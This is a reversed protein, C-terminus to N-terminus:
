KLYKDLLEAMQKQYEKAKLHAKIAFDEQDSAYIIARSIAVLLGCQKNLGNKAVEELSGGQAGVGPILLFNNPAIERIKKLYDAQTAGVVFMIRDSEEWSLATKIVQEFVFGGGQTKLLQFDKSSPNSSLAVIIAYKNKYSLFPKVSDYGMYPSLTVSNCDLDKPDLFAKAYMSSTNDIDGRKADAITFFNKPLWQITKKLAPWAIHYNTEYFATNCKYSVCFESTAEIIQKNFEFIPDRHKLLHKPIKNIDTDLGISLFSKKRKIESFLKSLKM